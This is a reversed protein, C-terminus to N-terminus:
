PRDLGREIGTEGACRADRLAELEVIGAADKPRGAARKAVLLGEVSLVRLEFEEFPLTEAAADVEAFGGLGKIAALLDVDGATTELTLVENAILTQADFVFPLHPPHNRPKPDFPRLAAAIRAANVRTREYALDVDQTVYASGQLRLAVGGVVVVRARERALARLVDLLDSV